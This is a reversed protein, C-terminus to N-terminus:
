GNISEVSDPKYFFCIDPIRDKCEGYGRREFFDALRSNLVNEVFVSLGANAAIKEIETLIATFIGRSKRREYVSVSAITVAKVTSGEIRRLGTRLYLRIEDNEIWGNRIELSIFDEAQKAIPVNFNPWMLKKAM